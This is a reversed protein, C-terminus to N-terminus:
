YFLSGDRRHQRPLPSMDYPERALLEEIAQEDIEVGLGPVEPVPYRPGEPKPYLPCMESNRPSFSGDPNRNRDEMWAFNPVAAAFHLICATSIPSIALHPMMDIYHAECWGAVKMAETFGGVNGIDIRALNVIDQEIFPAWDWKSTFVEGVAFPIETMRRLERYASPTHERIPDEIFDLTGHPLRQCFSAAEAVSFAHHYDVGLVPGPGVADRVKIMREAALKISERADFIGEETSSSMSLRLAEWGQSIWRPADEDAVPTFCPVYDRLKGGLLQYVPVGLSKAVVDHLAIDVASTAAALWRGGEMAGGRYMEQWLATINMPDKGVLSERLHAIIGHVGMERRWASPGPEGWGCHGEDTEIKVLMLSQRIPFSKVEIIKM